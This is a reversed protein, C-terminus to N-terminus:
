ISIASDGLSDAGCLSLDENTAKKEKARKFFLTDLRLASYMGGFLTKHATASYM